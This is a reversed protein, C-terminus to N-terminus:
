RASAADDKDDALAGVAENVWHLWWVSPVRQHGRVRHVLGRNLLENRVQALRKKEGAGPEKGMAEIIQRETIWAAATRRALSEGVIAMCFLTQTKTLRQQGIWATALSMLPARTEEDGDIAQYLAKGLAKIETQGIKAEPTM